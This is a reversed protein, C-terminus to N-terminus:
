PGLIVQYYRTLEDRPHSQTKPPGDDVWTVREGTGAVPPNVTIWSKMDDSYQIIMSRNLITDFSVTFSGDPQRANVSNFFVVPSGCLHEVNPIRTPKDQIGIQGTGLEGSYNLGFGYLSCDNGLALSHEGGAAIALWATVGPPFPVLVPQDFGGQGPFGLQGEVNRGWAYLNGDNGIGLAHTGGAVFDRWASVGTPFRVQAPVDLAGLIPSEWNVGYLNGDDGKLIVGASTTGIQTYATVGTPFPIQVRTAKATFDVGIAWAVGDRALGFNVYGSEEFQKWPIGETAPADGGGNLIVHGEETLGYWGDRGVGAQIWKAGSLPRAVPIPSDVYLDGAESIGVRGKLSTWKKVGAPGGALAAFWTESHSFSTWIGPRYGFIYVAGVADTVYSTPTSIDAFIRPKPLEDGAYVLLTTEASEFEVQNTDKGRATVQYAGAAPDSWVWGDARATLNTLESGNAYIKLDQIPANDAFAASLFIQAPRRHVSGPPPSTIRLTKMTISLQVPSEVGADGIVRIQYTSSKIAHFAVSAHTNMAPAEEISVLKTLENGSYV